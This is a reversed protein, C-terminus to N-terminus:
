ASPDLPFCGAHGYVTFTKGHRTVVGRTLHHPEGCFFCRSNVFRRCAKAMEAMAKKMKPSWKKFESEKVTLYFDTCPSSLPEEQKLRKSSHSGARKRKQYSSSRSIPKPSRSVHSSTSSPSHKLTKHLALEDGTDRHTSSAAQNAKTIQRCLTHEKSDGRSDSKTSTTRKKSKKKM